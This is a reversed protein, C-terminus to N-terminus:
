RELVARVMAKTIDHRRRLYRIVAQVEVATFGPYETAVRRIYLTKAASLNDVTPAPGRKVPRRIRRGSADYYVM